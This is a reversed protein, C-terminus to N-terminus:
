CLATPNAMTQLLIKGRIVYRLLVESPLTEDSYNLDSHNKSM